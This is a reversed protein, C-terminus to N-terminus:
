TAGCILVAIQVSCGSDPGTNTRPEGSAGNVKEVITLETMCCSGRKNALEARMAEVSTITERTEEQMKSVLYGSINSM